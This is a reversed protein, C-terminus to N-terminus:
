SVNKTEHMLHSSSMPAVAYLTELLKHAAWCSCAGLLQLRGCVEDSHERTFTGPFHLTADPPRRRKVHHNQEVAPSARLRKNM